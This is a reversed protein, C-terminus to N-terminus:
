NETAFGSENVDYTIIIKNINIAINNNIDSIFYYNFYPSAILQLQGFRVNTKAKLQSVPGLITKLM